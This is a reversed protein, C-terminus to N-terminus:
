EQQEFKLTEFITEKKMDVVNINLIKVISKGKNYDFKEIDSLDLEKLEAKALEIKALKEAEKAEDSAVADPLKELYPFKKAYLDDAKAVSITRLDIEGFGAFNYKAARITKMRYKKAVDEPLKRELEKTEKEM